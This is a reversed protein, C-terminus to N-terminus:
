NNYVIYVFFEEADEAMTDNNSADGDKKNDCKPHNIYRDILFAEVEDVEEKTGVYVKEIKTYDGTYDPQKLRDSLKEGSKGIKFSRCKPIIENIRDIANVIKLDTVM